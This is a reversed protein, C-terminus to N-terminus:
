EPERYAEHELDFANIAMDRTMGVASNVRVLDDETKVFTAVPEFRTRQQMPQVVRDALDVIDISSQGNPIFICYDEQEIMEVELYDFEAQAFMGPFFRFFHESLEPLAMKARSYKIGLDEQDVTYQHYLLADGTTSKRIVWGNRVFCESNLAVGPFVIDDSDISAEDHISSYKYWCQNTDVHALIGWYTDKMQTINGLGTNWASVTVAPSVSNEVNNWNVRNLANAAFFGDDTFFDVHSSTIDSIEATLTTGLAFANADEVEVLESRRFQQRERIPPFEIKGVGISAPTM